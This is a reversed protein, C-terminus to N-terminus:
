ILLLICAYSSSSVHRNSRAGQEAQDLMVLISERKKAGGSGGGEGGDGGGGAGAGVGGRAREGKGGKRTFYSTITVGGGLGGKGNVAGEGSAIGGEAMAAGTHTLRDVEEQM